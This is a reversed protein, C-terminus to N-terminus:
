LMFSVWCLTQSLSKHPTALGWIAPYHYLNNPSIICREFAQPRLVGVYTRLPWRSCGRERSDRKPVSSSKCLIKEICSLGLGVSVLLQPWRAPCLQARNYPRVITGWDNTTTAKNLSIWNRVFLFVFSCVNVQWLLYCTFQLADQRGVSPLVRLFSAHMLDRHFTRFVTPDQSRDCFGLASAALCVMGQGRCGSNCM